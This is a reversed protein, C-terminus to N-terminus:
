TAYLAPKNKALTLDQKFVLPTIFHIPNTLKQKKAVRQFNKAFGVSCIKLVITGNSFSAAIKHAQM